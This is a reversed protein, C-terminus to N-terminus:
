LSHSLFQCSSSYQSLSDFILQFKLNEINRAQIKVLKKFIQCNAHHDYKEFPANIELLTDWLLKFGESNFNVIESAVPQMTSMSMYNPFLFFHDVFSMFDIPAVTFRSLLTFPRPWLNYEIYIYPCDNKKEQSVFRDLLASFSSNRYM